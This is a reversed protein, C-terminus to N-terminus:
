AKKKSRRSRAFCAFFQCFGCQGSWGTKGAETKEWKQNANGEAMEANFGVFKTSKQGSVFRQKEKELERIRQLTKHSLGSSPPIKSIDFERIKGTL